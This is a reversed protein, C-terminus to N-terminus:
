RASTTPRPSLLALRALRLLSSRRAATRQTYTKRTTTPCPSSPSKPPAKQRCPSKWLTQFVSFTLMPRMHTALLLGKSGPKVASDEVVQYADSLEGVVSGDEEDVLVIRGGAHSSRSGQVYGEGPDYSAPNYPPLAEGAAERAKSSTGSSRPAAAAGAKPPPARAKEVPAPTRELFSTCQALITEWTGIEEALGSRSNLAPFEIRVFAGSDPGLDWRPILYSTPPQHYIKTTAPMPLDLREPIHLHLYFDQEESGELSAPDAFGSSTPVMLLSLKQPAGQTICQESGHQIQYANIGEVSFLLKPDQLLSATPNAQTNYEHPPPTATQLAYTIEARWSPSNKATEPHNYDLVIPHLSIFSNHLELLFITVTPQQQNLVDCILRRAQGLTLGRQCAASTM